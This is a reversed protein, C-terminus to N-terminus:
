SNNMQSILLDIMAQAQEVTFGANVLAELKIDYENPTSKLVFNDMSFVGSTQPIYDYMSIEFNSPCDFYTIGDPEIRNFTGLVTDTTLDIGVVM